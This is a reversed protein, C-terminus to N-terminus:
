RYPNAPWSLTTPPATGCTCIRTAYGAMRARSGPRAQGRITPPRTYARGVRYDGSQGPFSGQDASYWLMGDDAEVHFGAPVIASLRDALIATLRDVDVAM